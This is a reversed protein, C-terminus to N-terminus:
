LTPVPILHKQFRPLWPSQFHGQFAKVPDDGAFAARLHVLLQLRPLREKSQPPGTCQCLQQRLISQAADLAKWIRYATSLSFLRRGQQWAAHIKGACQLVANLFATILASDISRNPLISAWHICFSKGCGKSHGRKSCRIRQGREIRACCMQTPDNGYLLGNCILYGQIGCSPCEILKLKGLIQTRHEAGTFFRPLKLRPLPETCAPSSM